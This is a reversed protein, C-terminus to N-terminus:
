TRTHPPRDLNNLATWGQKTMTFARVHQAPEPCHLVWCDKRCQSTFSVWELRHIVGLPTDVPVDGRVRFPRGGKCLDGIKVLLDHIDLHLSEANTINLTNDIDASM